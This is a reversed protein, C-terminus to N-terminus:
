FNCDNRRCPLGSRCVVIDVFGFDRILPLSSQLIRADSYPIAIRQSAIVIGALKPEDLLVATGVILTGDRGVRDVFFSEIYGVM